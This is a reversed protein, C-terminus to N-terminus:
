SMIDWSNLQTNLETPLMSAEYDSPQSNLCAEPLNKKRFKNRSVTM